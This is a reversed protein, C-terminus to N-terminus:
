GYGSLLLHFAIARAQHILQFVVRLGLFYIVEQRISVVIRDLVEALLAESLVVVQRFRAPFAIDLVVISACHHLAGNLSVNSM